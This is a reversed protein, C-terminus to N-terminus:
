KVPFNRLLIGLVVSIRNMSDKNFGTGLIGNIDVLDESLDTLTHRLFKNEWTMLFQTSNPDKNANNIKTHSITDMDM